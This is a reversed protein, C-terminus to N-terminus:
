KRRRQSSRLCWDIVGQGLLPVCQEWVGEVDGRIGGGGEWLTVIRKRIKKEHIREIMKVRILVRGIIPGRDRRLVPKKQVENGRVQEGLVKKGKGRYV